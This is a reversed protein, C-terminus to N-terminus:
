SNSEPVNYTVRERKALWAVPNDWTYYLIVVAVLYTFTMGPRVRFGANNSYIGAKAPIVAQSIDNGFYYKM